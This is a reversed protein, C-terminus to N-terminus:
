QPSFDNSQWLINPVFTMPFLGSNGHNNKWFYGSTMEDNLHRFSEIHVEALRNTAWEWRTRKFGHGLCENRALSVQADTIDIACGKIEDVFYPISGLFLPRVRLNGEPLSVYCHFIVM